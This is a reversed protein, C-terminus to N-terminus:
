PTGTERLTRAAAVIAELKKKVLANDNMPRASFTGFGCDPNLFVAEPSM